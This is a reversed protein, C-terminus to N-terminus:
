EFYGDIFDPLVYNNSSNDEIKGAIGGGSSAINFQTNMIMQQENFVRWKREMEQHEIQQLRHQNFYQDKNM